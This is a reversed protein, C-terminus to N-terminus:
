EHKRKVNARDQRNEVETPRRKSRRNQQPPNGAAKPDADTIMAQECMAPELRRFVEFVKQSKAPSESQFSARNRPNRRMAQMMCIDLTVAVRM